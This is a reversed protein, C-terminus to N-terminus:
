TVNQGSDPILSEMQALFPSVCCVNTFMHRNIIQRIILAVLANDAFVVYNIYRDNKSHQKDGIAPQWLYQIWMYLRKRFRIRLARWDLELKLETCM